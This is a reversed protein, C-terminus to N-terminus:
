DYEGPQAWSPVNAAGPSYSQVQAEKLRRSDVVLGALRDSLRNKCLERCDRYKVVPAEKVGFDGRGMPPDPGGHLKHNRQVMWVWLGFPMRTPEATKACVIM